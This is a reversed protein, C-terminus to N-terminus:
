HGDEIWCLDVERERMSIYEKDGYKFKAGQYKIATIRDGVKLDLKCKEGKAVIKGSRWEDWQSHADPLVLAGEYTKKIPDAEILYCDGFSKLTM